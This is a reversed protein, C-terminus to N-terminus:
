DSGLLLEVLKEKNDRSNYDIRKDDLLESIEAKTLENYVIANSDEKLNVISKEIVENEEIAMNFAEDINKVFLNTKHSLVHERLRLMRRQNRDM